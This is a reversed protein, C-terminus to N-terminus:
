KGMEKLDTQGRLVPVQEIKLPITTGRKKKKRPGGWEGKLLHAAKSEQAAGKGRCLRVDAM